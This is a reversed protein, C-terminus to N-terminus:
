AAVPEPLVVRTPLALDTSEIALSAITAIPTRSRAPLTALIRHILGRPHLALDAPALRQYRTLVGEHSEVEALLTGNPAMAAGVNREVPQALDDFHGDRLRGILSDADAIRAALRWAIGRGRRAEIERMLHSDATRASIGTEVPMGDILGENWDVAGLPRDPTWLPLDARGWRGDWHTWVERLVAAAPVRATAIWSEFEALRRPAGSPGFLSLSLTDPAIEGSRAVSRAPLGLAMPWAMNLRMAHEHLAETVMSRALDQPVPRGAAALVAAAEAAPAAAYVVGALQAAEEVPRGALMRSLSLMPPADVRVALQGDLRSLTITLAGGDIM